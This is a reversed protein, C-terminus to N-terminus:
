RHDLLGRAFDGLVAWTPGQLGGELLTMTGFFLVTAAGLAVPVSVLLWGQARRPWPAGDAIGFHQQVAFLATGFPWLAATWAVYNVLPVGLWFAPLRADWTWCHTATAVPDVQLDFLVGCTAFLLGSWVPSRQLGPFARRARWTLFACLYIVMVWGLMTALPAVLGPVYVRYAVEAFYGMAIGGNELIVGYLLGAGFFIGLTGKGHFRAHVLLPVFVVFNSYEYVQLLAAQSLPSPRHVLVLVAPMAVAVALARLLVSARGEARLAYFGGFLAIPFVIPWALDWRPSGLNALANNLMSVSLFLLMWAPYHTALERWASRLATPQSPPAPWPAPAPEPLLDRALPSAM